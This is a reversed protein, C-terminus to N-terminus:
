AVWIFIRLHYRFAGSHVRKAGKESGWVMKWWGLGGDFEGSWM